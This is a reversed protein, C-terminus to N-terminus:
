RRLRHPLPRPPYPNPWLSFLGPRPGAPRAGHHGAPKVPVRGAGFRLLVLKRPIHPASPACQAACSFDHVVLACIRSPDHAVSTCMLPFDRASPTYLRPPSHASSMRIASVAPLQRAPAQPMIHLLPGHWPALHRTTRYAPLTQRVTPHFGCTSPRPSYASPHPPESAALAQHCPPGSAALAQSATAWISYAIPARHTPHRLRRSAHHAPHQSRRPCQPQPLLRKPCQASFQASSSQMAHLQTPFWAHLSARHTAFPPHSAYPPISDSPAQAGPRLSCAYCAAPQVSYASLLTTPQISRASPLTTPQICYASPLASGPAPLRRRRLRTAHAKPDAQACFIVYTQTKIGLTPTTQFGAPWRGAPKYVVWARISFGRSKFRLRAPKEPGGPVAPSCVANPLLSFRGARPTEM